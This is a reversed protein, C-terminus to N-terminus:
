DPSTVPSRLFNGKGDPALMWQNSVVDVGPRQRQVVFVHTRSGKENKWEQLTHEYTQILSM